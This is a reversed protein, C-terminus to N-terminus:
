RGNFKKMILKMHRWGDRFSELTTEGKRQHYTIPVEEITLGNQEAQILMESAFEMGDATLELGDLAERRIIRFGSHADDVNADHSINFLATLLPNGIYRHLPPMAGTKIEGDLRDGIVLDADARELRRFLKPLEEFNYTTDADGIAVYEGRVSEFAYRYAYGYGREDPTVVIAGMERAFEPTRDTSCDSILIEGSVGLTAIANKIQLICEQIAAEENLTPMVVSLVPRKESSRPLLLEDAQHEFRENMNRDQRM